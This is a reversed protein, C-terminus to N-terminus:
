CTVPGSERAAKWLALWVSRVHIEEEFSPHAHGDRVASVFHEVLGVMARAFLEASPAARDLDVLRETSSRGKGLNRLVDLTGAPLQLDYRGDETSVSVHHARAPDMHPMPVLSTVCGSTHELMVSPPFSTPAAAARSSFASPYPASAMVRGVPGALAVAMDVAIVMARGPCLMNIRLPPRTPDVFTLLRKFAGSLRMTYDTGVRLQKKAALASLATVTSPEHAVPHSCLVHCDAELLRRVIAPSASEHVSVVAIRPAIQQLAAELDTFAAVGCVEALAKTRASGRGVIGLLDARPDNKLALAAHRGWGSGVVLARM